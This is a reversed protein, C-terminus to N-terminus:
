ALGRRQAKEVAPIVVDRVYDEDAPGYFQLVIGGQPGNYNPSSQPTVQVRERGGPNDGVMILQPGSTVFDGGRAFKQAEIQAVNALGTVIAAAALIGGLPMPYTALNRNAAAYTDVVAQAQMLRKSALASGRFAQNATALSGITASALELRAFRLEQTWAIEAGAAAARSEQGALWEDEAENWLRQAETLADINYVEQGELAAIDSLLEFQVARRDNAENAVHIQKSEAEIAEWRKAKLEDVKDAWGDWARQMREQDEKTQTMASRFAAEDEEASKWMQRIQSATDVAQQEVASLEESYGVLKGVGRDIAQAGADIARGLPKLTVIDWTFEVAKGIMTLLSLIPMGVNELFDQWQNSYDTIADKGKGMSNQTLRIAVEVAEGNRMQEATLSRFQPIMEGLEGSLGSFTKALNRVSGELPIGFAVSLGLAAQMVRNIREEGYGLTALFAQQRVILNDSIGTTHQMQAAWAILRKENGEFSADLLRNAKAQDRASTIGQQLASILGRASMWGAALAMGTSALSAMGGRLGLVASEAKQVDQAARQATSADVIIRNVSDPM